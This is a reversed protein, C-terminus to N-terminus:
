MQCDHRYGMRKKMTQAGKKVAIGTKLLATKGILDNVKSCREEIIVVCIFLLSLIGSYMREHSDAANTEPFSSM